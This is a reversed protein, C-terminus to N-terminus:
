CWCWSRRGEEVWETELEDRRLRAEGVGEVGGGRGEELGGASGGGFGGTSSAVGDGSSGETGKSGGLTCNKRPAGGTAVPPRNLLCVLWKPLPDLRDLLM